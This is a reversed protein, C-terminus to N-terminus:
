RAQLSLSTNRPNPNSRHPHFRVQGQGGSLGAIMPPGAKWSMMGASWKRGAAGGGGRGRSNLCCLIQGNLRPNPVRPLFGDREGLCFVTAVRRTGDKGNEGVRGQGAGQLLKRRRSKDRFSKCSSSSAKNNARGQLQRGSGPWVEMPLFHVEDEVEHGRGRQM